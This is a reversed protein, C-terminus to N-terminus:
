KSFPAIVAVLAAFTTLWLFDARFARGFRCSPYLPQVNEAFLITADMVVKKCAAICDNTSFHEPDTSTSKECWRERERTTMSIMTGVAEVCRSGPLRKLHPYIRFVAVDLATGSLQLVSEFKTLTYQQGDLAVWLRLASFFQLCRPETGALQEASHTIVPSPETHADSGSRSNSSSSSGENTGDTFKQGDRTRGSLSGDNQTRNEKRTNNKGSPSPTTAVGDLNVYAAIANCRCTPIYVTGNRLAFRFITSSYAKEDWSNLPRGVSSRLTSKLYKLQDGATKTVLDAKSLASTERELTWAQVLQNAAYYQYCLFLENAAIRLSRYAHRFLYKHLTVADLATRYFWVMDTGELLQALYPQGFKDKKQITIFPPPNPVWRRIVHGDYCLTVRDLYHPGIKQDKSVLDILNSNKSGAPLRSWFQLRESFACLQHVMYYNTGNIEKTVQTLNSRVFGGGSYAAKLIKEYFSVSGEGTPSDVVYRVGNDDVVSVTISCPLQVRWNLKIQGGSYITVEELFFLHSTKETIHVVKYSQMQSLPRDIYMTVIGASNSVKYYRYAYYIFDDSEIKENTSKPPIWELGLSQQLSRFSGYHKIRKQFEQAGGPFGHATARQIRASLSFLLYVICFNFAARSSCKLFM